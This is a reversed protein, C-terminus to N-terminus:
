FGIIHIQIARVYGRMDCSKQEPICVIYHHSFEIEIISNVNTRNM